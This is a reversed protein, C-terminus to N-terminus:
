RSSKVEGQVSKMFIRYKKGSIKKNSLFYNFYKTIFKSVSIINPTNDGGWLSLLTNYVQVNTKGDILNDKDMKEVVEYMPSLKEPHKYKESVNNVVSVVDDIHVFGESTIYVGLCEIIEDYVTM